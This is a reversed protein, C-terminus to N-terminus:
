IKQRVYCKQPGELLFEFGSSKDSDGTYPLLVVKKYRLTIGGSYHFLKHHSPSFLSTFNQKLLSLRLQAIMCATRTSERLHRSSPQM